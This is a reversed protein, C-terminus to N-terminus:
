SPAAALRRSTQTASLALMRVTSSAVVSASTAAPLSGLTTRLSSRSGSAHVRRQDDRWRQGVAKVRGGKDDVEVNDFAVGGPQRRLHRPPPDRESGMGLGVLADLEAPDLECM